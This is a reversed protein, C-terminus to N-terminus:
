IYLAENKCKCKLKFPENQYILEVKINKEVGDLKKVIRFEIETSSGM